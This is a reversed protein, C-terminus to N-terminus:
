DRCFVYVQGVRTRSSFPRPAGFWTGQADNGASTVWVVGGDVARDVAKLPSFSFPSTGDGPGDFTWVLSTNIVSVGEAIMWDAASQLDGKTGANAIYLSVEPAIDMLSEAVGTGHKSQEDNDCASLNSTFVGIDTYCRGVVKAPLETGMLDQLGYFGTDIVGVKVGEGTIGAEHWATALHAGVGQSTVDGYAPQPPVIERVRIVGPQQPYNGWCLTVPM